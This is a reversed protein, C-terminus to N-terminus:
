NFRIKNRRPVNKRYSRNIKRSWSKRIILWKKNVLRWDLLVKKSLLFWLDFLDRGRVRTLIARVKEAMIEELGLHSILPYPGIPFITELISVRPKLPKERLSFKLRCTLPIKFDAIKQFLRGSFTLILNKEKKFTTGPAEYNLDNLVEGILQSLKRSDLLSTFDLDESFRFSDFLFHLATGGKFYVKESGKQRYFYKLFLLQLYERYITFLDIKLYQSLKQATEKSLM